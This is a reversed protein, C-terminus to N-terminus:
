KNKFKLYQQKAEFSGTNIYDKISNKFASNFVKINSNENVMNCFSALWIVSRDVRDLKKHNRKKILSISKKINNINFIGIENLLELNIMDTIIGSNESLWLTYNHHSPSYNDFPTQSTKNIFPRGTRAWPIEGIKMPLLDLLEEYLKNYRYSYDLNFVFSILEYSTFIQKLPIRQDIISMAVQLYKMHHNKLMLIEKLIDRNIHRSKFSLYFEDEKQKININRQEVFKDKFLGLKDRSGQSVSPMNEVKNGSYEARGIADGFSGALIIDLRSKSVKKLSHLNVPNTECGIESNNYIGNMLTNSNQYFVDIDWGYIDAIRKAYIIDRSDSLGWTLIKVNFNKYSQVHKLVGALVRSDLGGSLLIGVNKFGDTYDEVEKVLLNFIHRPINTVNEIEQKEYYQFLKGEDIISERQVEKVLTSEGLIYGYQLVDFVSENRITFIENGQALEKFDLTNQVTNNVVYKPIDSINEIMM